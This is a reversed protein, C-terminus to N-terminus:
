KKPEDKYRAAAQVDEEKPIVKQSPKSNETSEEFKVDKKIKRVPIKSLHTKSGVKEEKIVRSTAKLSGSAKKIEKRRDSM